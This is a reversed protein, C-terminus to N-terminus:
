GERLRTGGWFMIAGITLGVPMVILQHTQLEYLVVMLLLTMAALQLGIGLHHRM